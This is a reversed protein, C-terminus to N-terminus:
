GLGTWGTEIDGTAPDQIQNTLSPRVPANALGLTIDTLPATVKLSFAVVHGRIQIQPRGAVSELWKLGSPMNIGRSGGGPALLWTSAIVQQYLTQVADFDSEYSPSSSAGWCQVEFDVTEDFFSRAQIQTLMEPTRDVYAAYGAGSGTSTNFTVSPESIYGSGIVNPLLRIVHGAADLVLTATAQVGGTIDPPGITVTDASVYGIGQAQAVYANIGGGVAQANQLTKTVQAQRNPRSPADFSSGKPVFIIRPADVNEDVHVQGLVIGGDVLAIQARGGTTYNANGGSAFQTGTADQSYLAVTNPGTVQALWTGNAATNGGVGTVTMVALANAALPLPFTPNAPQQLTLVIPSANTAGTVNFTNCSLGAAILKQCVDFSVLNVIRTVVSM